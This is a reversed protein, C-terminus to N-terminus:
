HFNLAKPHKPRPCTRAQPVAPLLRAPWCCASPLLSCRGQWVSQGVPATNGTGRCDSRCCRGAAQSQRSPWGHCRSWRLHPRQAPPLHQWCCDGCLPPMSKPPLLPTRVNWSSRRRRRALPVQSRLQVRKLRCGWGGGACPEDDDSHAIAEDDEAGRGVVHQRRRDGVLLGLVHSHSRPPRPPMYQVCGGLRVACMRLLSRDRSWAGRENLKTTIENAAVAQGATSAQRGVGARARCCNHRPMGLM